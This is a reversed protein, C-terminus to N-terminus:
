GGNKKAETAIDRRHRKAYEILADRVIMWKPQQRVSALVNLIKDAEAPLDRILYQRDM